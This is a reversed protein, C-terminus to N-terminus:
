AGSPLPVTDRNSHSGCPLNETQNATPPPPPEKRRSSFNSQEYHFAWEGRKRSKKGAFSFDVFSAGKGCGASKPAPICEAFRNVAKPPNGFPKHTIVCTQSRPAVARARVPNAVGCEPARNLSPPDGGRRSGCPMRAKLRPHTLPAASPSEASRRFPPPRRHVLWGYPRVTNARTLYRTEWASSFDGATPVPTGSPGSVFSVFQTRACRSTKGFRSTGCAGETVAEGHWRGRPPLCKNTRDCLSRSSCAGGRGCM